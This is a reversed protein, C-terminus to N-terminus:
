RVRLHQELQHQVDDETPMAVLNKALIKGFTKKKGFIAHDKVLIAKGWAACYDSGRSAVEQAKQGIIKWQSTKKVTPNLVLDITQLRMHSVQTVFLIPATPDTAGVPQLYHYINNVLTHRDPVEIDEIFEDKNATMINTLLMDRVSYRVKAQVERVQAVFDKQADTDKGNIVGAPFERMRFDLPLEHLKKLTISLLSQDGARPKSRRCTYTLINPELFAQKTLERIRDMLVQSYQSRKAAPAKVPFTDKETRNPAIDSNATTQAGHQQRLMERYVLYTVAAGPAKLIAVAAEFHKPDLQETVEGFKTVFDALSEIETGTTAASENTTKAPPHQAAQRAPNEKHFQEDLREIEPDLALDAPEHPNICNSAARGQDSDLPSSDQIKKPDGGDDNDSDEGLSSLRPPPPPPSPERRSKKQVRSAKPANVAKDPLKQSRNFRAPLRLRPTRIPAMETPPFITM